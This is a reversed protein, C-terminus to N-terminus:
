EEEDHEEDPDQIRFTYPNSGFVNMYGYHRLLDGVRVPYPFRLWQLYTTGLSDCLDKWGEPKVWSFDSAFSSSQMTYRAFRSRQCQFVFLHDYNSERLEEPMVRWVLDYEFLSVVLSADCGEFGQAELLPITRLNDIHQPNDPHPIVIKSM